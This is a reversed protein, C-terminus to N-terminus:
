FMVTTLNVVKYGEKEAWDQLELLQERKNVYEQLEKQKELKANQAKISPLNNWFKQYVNM